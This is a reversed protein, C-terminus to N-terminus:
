ATCFSSDVALAGFKGLMEAAFWREEGKLMALLYPIAVPHRLEVLAGATGLSCGYKNIIDVIPQVARKDGIKGLAATASDRIM